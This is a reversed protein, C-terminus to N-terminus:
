ACVKGWHDINKDKGGRRGAFSHSRFQGDPLIETQRYGVGTKIVGPEPVSWQRHHNGRDNSFEGGAAYYGWRGNDWCIKKGSIDSATVPRGEPPLVWQAPAESGCFLLFGLSFIASRYAM